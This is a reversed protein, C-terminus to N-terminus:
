KRRMTESGRMEPASKTTSFQSVSMWREQLQPNQEDIRRAADLASVRRLLSVAVCTLGLIGTAILAVSTLRARHATEFLVFLWDIGIAVLVVIFASTLALVVGALLRLGRTRRVVASIKEAVIEPVAFESDTSRSPITAM